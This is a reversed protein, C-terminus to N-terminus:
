RLCASSQSVAQAYRERCGQLFAGFHYEFENQFCTQSDSLVHLICSTYSSLFSFRTTCLSEIERWGARLNACMFTKGVDDCVIGLTSSGDGDVVDRSYRYIYVGNVMLARVSESAVWFWAEEPTVGSVSRAVRTCFSSAWCTSM